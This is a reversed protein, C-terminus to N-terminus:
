PSKSVGVDHVLSQGINRQHIRHMFKVEVHPLKALSSFVHSELFVFIRNALHCVRLLVPHCLDCSMFTVTVVSHWM